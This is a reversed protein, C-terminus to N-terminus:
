HIRRFNLNLAAPWHWRPGRTVDPCSTQSLCCSLVVALPWFAQAVGLVREALGVQGAGTILEAGFWALLGLLIGAASISGALASAAGGVADCSGPQLGGAVMWGAVLLVPAVASSVVGWWPVGL